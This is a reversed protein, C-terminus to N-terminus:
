RKRGNKHVYALYGGGLLLAFIFWQIAYSLHSGESLDIEPRARFPLAVNGEPPPAQQLYVPLLSYPLQNDMAEIDVRHWDRQWAGSDGGAAQVATRPLPQSLQIYGTIVTTGTVDFQDLREPTAERYPIFGRNVLVAADSDQIRLPTIIHVGPAGQWNQSLLIMQRELDFQGAVTAMRDRLAPPEDPLAEGTLAFPPQDLQQILEANYARREDLRDLQWFGLRALFAMGLLVVLTAWWWQRSFILRPLQRWAANPPSSKSM